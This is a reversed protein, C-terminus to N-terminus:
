ELGGEGEEAYAHARGRGGPAIDDVLALGIEQARGPQHEKGPNRDQQQREGAVDHAVAQAIGEIGGGSPAALSPARAIIFYRARRNAAETSIRSRTTVMVRQRM